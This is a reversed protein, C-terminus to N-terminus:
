FPNMVPTSSGEAVALPDKHWRKPANAGMPVSAGSGGFGATSRAAEVVHHDEDTWAPARPEPAVETLSYKRGAHGVGKLSLSLM